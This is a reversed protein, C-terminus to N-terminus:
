SDTQIYALPIGAPDYVIATHDPRDLLEQMASDELDSIFESLSERRVEKGNASIYTAFGTFTFIMTDVTEHDANLLEITYKM